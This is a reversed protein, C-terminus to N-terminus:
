CDGLLFVFFIRSVFTLPGGSRPDQLCRLLEPVVNEQFIVDNNLFILYEANTAEAARNNSYAFSQNEQCDTVNIRLRNQFSRIVERSEDTCAHLIVKFEVRSLTNFRLFSSFLRRLHHEGSRHLVICCITSDALSPM